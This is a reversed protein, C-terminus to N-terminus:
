TTQKNANIALSTLSDQLTKAYCQSPKQLGNAVTNNLNLVIIEKTQQLDLLYHSKLITTWVCKM